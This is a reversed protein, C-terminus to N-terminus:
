VAVNLTTYPDDGWNTARTDIRDFWRHKPDFISFDADLLKPGEGLDVVSRYVNENGGPGTRWRYGVDISGTLWKETAPVPSETAAEAAKQDPTAEPKPTAPPPQAQQGWAAICLWFWTVHKM